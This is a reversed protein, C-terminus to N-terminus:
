DSERASVVRCPVASCYRAFFALSRAAVLRPRLSLYSAHLFFHPLVIELCSDPQASAVIELAVGSQTAEALAQLLYKDASCYPRNGATPVQETFAERIDEMAYVAKWWTLWRDLQEAVPNAAFGLLYSCILLGGVLVISPVSRFDGIDLWHLREGVFAILALYLSGPITYTFVDFLGLQITM